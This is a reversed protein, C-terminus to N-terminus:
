RKLRAAAPADLWLQLTGAAPCLGTAPVAPDPENARLAAVVEAVRAAKEAGTVLLWIARAANLAPYTLTFRRLGLRPVTNLAALATREELAATGPFLSAVHGEAGMGLLVLDLAPLSAPAAPNPPVEHMLQAAYRDAEAPLDPAETRWRFINAPPIPSQALWAEHALRYNSDPHTSPVCREDGWFIKVRAWDLTPTTQDAPTLLAGYLKAATRGGTLAVSFQGRAAICQAGCAQFETRFAAALEDVTPLVTLTLGAHQSM